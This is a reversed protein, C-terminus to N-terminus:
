PFILRFFLQKFIFIFQNTLLSPLSVMRSDMLAKAMFKGLLKFRQKLKNGVSPKTSRGLPAPFLGNSSFVYSVSDTENKDEKFECNSMVEGRWMEFDSRQFEKSVLAYFELTPGLGTGVENEYQIELLSKSGSLDNFLTEASKFIDTRSVIRKRKDLRPVISRERSDLTSFDPMNLLASVISAFLM